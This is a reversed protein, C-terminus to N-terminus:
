YVVKLGLTVGHVLVDDKAERITGPIVETKDIISPATPVDSLYFIRYGARLAVSQGLRFGAAIGGEAVAIWDSQDGSAQFAPGIQQGVSMALGSDTSLAGIRGDLDVFVRDGFHLEGGIQPGIAFTDAEFTVFAVNVGGFDLRNTLKEDLMVSRVGVFVAARPGFNRSINLEVSDLSSDYDVTANAAALGFLPPITPFNFIPSTTARTKDNFEFGGFFRVGGGYVGNTFNLRADLGPEWDFDLNDSDVLTSGTITNEIIPYNEGQERTAYVFDASGSVVWGGPAEVIQEGGLDAASAPLGLSFCILAASASQVYVKARM